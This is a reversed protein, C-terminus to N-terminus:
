RNPGSLPTPSSAAPAIRACWADVGREILQLSHEFSARPGLYPDPIDFGHAAAGLRFVRGCLFPHRRELWRKQELDMTLILDARTVHRSSVQRARHAALDLGRERMLDIAHPDAPQGDLAGIGASRVDVGPLRARLLAQAMPSRCVNGVCVVLLTAIASM